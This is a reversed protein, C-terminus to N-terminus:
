DPTVIAAKTSYDPTDGKHEEPSTAKTSEEVEGAAPVPVPPGATVRRFILETRLDSIEIAHDLNIWTRRTPISQEALWRFYKLHEKLEDQELKKALTEDALVAQANLKFNWKDYDTSRAPYEVQVWSDGSLQVVTFVELKTKIIDLENGKEARGKPAQYRRLTTGIFHQENVAFSIVYSKGLNLFDLGVRQAHTVSCGMAVILAIVCTKM